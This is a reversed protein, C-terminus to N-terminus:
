WVLKNFDAFQKLGQDIQALLGLRNARVKEDEAMVMVADFFNTIAPKLEGLIGLAKAGDRQELATSYPKQVQLWAAYLEKEAEEQLLSESVAAKSAKAALNSVRNFSEVTTKFEDGGGVANM